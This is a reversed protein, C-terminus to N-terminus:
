SYSLATGYSLCNDTEWHKAGPEIGSCITHTKTASLHCESINEGLIETEMALEREVFQEM